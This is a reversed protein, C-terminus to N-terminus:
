RDYLKNLKRIFEVPFMDLQKKTLKWEWNGKVTGPINMRSNHDLGLFDQMPVVSIISISSWATTIFKNVFQQETCNLYDNIYNRTKLDIDNYYWGLSTNNDHTGTYVICNEKLNHPLQTNKNDGCFAFQLVKMGPFSFKALLQEVDDGIIGLDEAIIPLDGFTNVLENFLLEGPADIWAGNKANKENAEIAWFSAFGRFHDLRILDFMRLSHEVRSKWWEFNTEVHEEWNYIPNGWFQGEENFYDPPVGAVHIPNLEDDLDFLEPNVLVDVSDASVYIPLDGIIRIGNQNAYNKLNFWQKFFIFQVFKEYESCSNNFEKEINRLAHRDKFKEPWDQFPINNFYTKLAIYKAYDDLWLSEQECFEQYEFKYKETKLFNSYAIKLIEQNQKKVSQFDIKNTEIIDLKLKELCENELLEWEVLKDFSILLHNGAYASCSQYPSNFEDIPTLPLIQWLKIGSEKLKDIFQYAEKGLTGIGYNGPLSSPHLLVGAKRSM